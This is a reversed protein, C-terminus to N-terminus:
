EGTETGRPSAPLGVGRGRQARHGLAQLKTKLGSRTCFLDRSKKESAAKCPCHLEAGRLEQSLQPEPVGLHANGARKEAAEITWGTPPLLAPEM